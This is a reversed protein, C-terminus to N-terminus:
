NIDYGQSFQNSQFANSFGVSTQIGESFVQLTPFGNVFKTMFSVGCNFKIPLETPVLYAGNALYSENLEQTTISSNLAYRIDTTVGDYVLRFANFSSFDYDSELNPETINFISQVLGKINLLIQYDSNFLVSFEGVLTYPLDLPFAETAYFGKYLSFTPTRLSKITGSTQNASYTFKLDVTNSTSAVVRHTGLYIGSDINCYQNVSPNIDWTGSITVRILGTSPETVGTITEGNFDFLYEIDSYASNWEEPQTTLTVNTAM